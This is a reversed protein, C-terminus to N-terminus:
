VVTFTCRAAQAGQPYAYVRVRVEGIPIINLPDTDTNSTWSANGQSDADLFTEPHHGYGQGGWDTRLYYRSGPNLGTVSVTFDGPKTVPNPTVTCTAGKADAPGSCLAFLGIIALVLIVTVILGVATLIGRESRM